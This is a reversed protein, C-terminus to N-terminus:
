KSSAPYTFIWNATIPKWWDPVGAKGTQRLMGHSSPPAVIYTLHYTGPGDMAAAAAYHPGGKGAVPMLLGARRFTPANEKTLSYSISLYPIFAHEAFGHTEDKGAHVDAVLFVTDPAKSMSTAVHDLEVGTLMGPIIEVGDRLIPGGIPAAHIPSAILSLALVAWPARM